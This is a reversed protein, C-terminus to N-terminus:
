FISVFVYLRDNADIELNQASPGPLGDINIKFASTSGGALTVSTLRLKQKNENYIRFYQTISGASTFVTDFHLSDASTRLRADPSEIFSEKKCAVLFYACLITLLLVQKKM